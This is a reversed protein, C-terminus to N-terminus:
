VETSSSGSTVNSFDPSSSGGDWSASAGGGGSSGGGGVWDPVTNVYGPDISRSTEFYDEERRRPPPTARSASTRSATASAANARVVRARARLADRQRLLDAAMKRAEAEEREGQKEVYWFIAKAIIGALILIGVVVIIGTIM